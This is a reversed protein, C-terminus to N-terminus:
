YTLDIEREVTNPLQKCVGADDGGNNYGKSVIKTATTGSSSDKTVVVSACSQNTSGIRSVVFSWSTVVGITPTSNLDIRSGACMIQSTTMGGRGRMSTSFANVARTDNYLACEAGTDAAFFAENTDKASTGFKIEKLSVNAVGLAIALLIASVTVAFLIVFGSNKKIKSLKM